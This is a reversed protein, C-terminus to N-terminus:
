SKSQPDLFPNPPMQLEKSNGELMDLVKSMAPRDAPHTQICWLAVIIMKKTIEVEFFETFIELKIAESEEARIERKLQHYIWHPFYIASTNEVTADINKRRGIMELVMMGYSYVDSKHSVGGINRCYVEPAIYGM